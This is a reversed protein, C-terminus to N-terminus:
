FKITFTTGKGVESKASILGGMAEVHKKTLFLGIGKAEKNEHFTKHLGFLNRGHKKLDIGLGNDKVSLVIRGYEENSKLQIIPERDPSRYKIANGVLNLFISELFIRNFSIKPAQSFDAIIQAKSEMIHGVLMEKTKGLIEDFTLIEIKKSGEHQIKLLDVLNDLTSILHKSVTEFNEIITSKIEQGESTHYFQLLSNLNNAPARLNHSTIHAFNALQLNQSTLKETLVELNENAKKLKNQNEVLETIDTAIGLFGFVEGQSTKLTTLALLVTLNKGDKRIYTCEIAGLNIQNAIEKFIEFRNVEKGSPLLLLEGMREIEEMSHFVEPTKKGIMEAKSYQLMKEAGRNFHNITGQNDTGIVSVLESNLMANLEENVRNLKIEARKVPTIDQFIGFIRKCHGEIYEAQGIARVWVENGKATVLEFELDYSSGNEIANAVAKSILERSEGEKYFNIATNVDPVFDEPVEHIERVVKSWILNEEELNYEWTGIRSIANTKELIAEIRKKEKEENKIPSIDETHILLGGIKNESVYWPRVDSKVWKKSGDNDIILEEKNSYNGGALCSEYIKKRDEGINPFIEFHSKGVIEEGESVYDKVWKKSVAIYRMDEDLMAIAYPSQQIFISNRKNSEELATEIRTRKSVDRISAMVLSGVNSQVPSLSIEVNFKEGNKRQGFLKLGKGMPRFNSSRFFSKIHSKHKERLKEPLLFEIEKGITEQKSYGFINKVQQNVYQITGSSNIIITADPAFELINTLLNKSNPTEEISDIIETKLSYYATFGISKDNEIDPAYSVSFYQLVGNENVIELAFNQQIGALVDKLHPIQKQYSQGLVERLTLKGIVKEYSKGYWKLFAKNAFQCIEGKDWYVLLEPIQNAVKIGIADRSIPM